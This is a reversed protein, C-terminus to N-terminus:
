PNVIRIQPGPNNRVDVHLWTPTSDTNEMTTLHVFKDFNSVIYQRADAPKVQLKCDAARGFRHQSYHAGTTSKASRFGSEKFQGGDMWDNVVVPGLEDRIADLTILLRPDFLEWAAEGREQFIDPPVLEFIKFHKPRYIM